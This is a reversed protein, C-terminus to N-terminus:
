VLNLLKTLKNKYRREKYDIIGTRPDELAETIRM